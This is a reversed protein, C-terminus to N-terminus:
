GSRIFNLLHSNNQEFYKKLTKHEDRLLQPDFSFIKSVDDRANLLIEIDHNLDLMSFSEEGSQRKGFLEGGGRIQLDVESIKFGDNTAIMTQLRKKSDSIVNENKSFDQKSILICYSQESSRGVRGRLQHLQALGFKDADEIIMITANSVDIGVEIVTTSVLIKIENKEFKEMVNNKEESTLQGHLLGIDIGKFDNKQLKEFENVASKYDLKESEEVLPVVIYAQRGNKIEKKVFDFIKSKDKESRIYTKIPIRGSPLESITSVELDGYLTMALTRPIPTASMVLLHPSKIGKSFLKARQEVGFRHQEDIIILGLNEFKVNKEILAHTGIVIQASGRKIDELIDTRLKKKQGGVLLRININLGILFKNLSHFHQEALIETPAMFAVQFNNEIANLTAFLAVITKGSGVDGQLLRHMPKAKSMDFFIENLVKKQSETLKFHLNNKLKEIIIGTPKIATGNSNNLFENKRYMILLQFMICENYKIRKLAEDKIKLNEPFHLQRIADKLEFFSYQNLIERPLFEKEANLYKEIVDKMIRRLQRQEIGAKRLTENLHYKPIVLGTNFKDYWNIEDDDSKLKDFDPHLFQVRGLKDFVVKSSFAVVDNIKFTKKFWEAGNFFVCSLFGTEDKVTVILFQKGFKTRKSEIRFIEGIITPEIESDAFNKLKSIQIIKSRDLYDYPFYFILDHPSNFGLSNLAKLRKPGIGKIFQLQNNGEM